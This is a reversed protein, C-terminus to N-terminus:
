GEVADLALRLTTASELDPNEVLIDELIKKLAERGRPDLYVLAFPAYYGCDRSNLVRRVMRKMWDYGFIMSEALAQFLTSVYIEAGCVPLYGEVAHILEYMSEMNYTNDEFGLCLEKIDEYDQFSVINRIAISFEDMQEQDETFRNAELRLFEDMKEM